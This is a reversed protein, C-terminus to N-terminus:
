KSSQLLSIILDLKQHISSVEESLSEVKQSLVDIKRNMSDLRLIEPSKRAKAPKPKESKQSDKKEENPLQQLSINEKTKETSNTQNIINQTKQNIEKLEEEIEVVEKEVTSIAEEEKEKGQNEEKNEDEEKEKGQNEEKNENEEKEKGQNEEKNIKEEKKVKYLNPVDKVMRKAKEQLEFARKENIEVGIGNYLLKAYEHYTTPDEISQLVEEFLKAAEKANKEQYIFDSLPSLIFGIFSKAYVNKMKASIQFHKMAENIDGNDSIINLGIQFHAQHSNYKNAAIDLFNIAKKRIEEKTDNHFIDYAALLAPFFGLNAAHLLYDIGGQIVLKENSGSNVKFISFASLPDIQNTEKHPAICIAPWSVDSDTFLALVFHNSFVKTAIKSIPQFLRGALLPPEGPISVLISEKDQSLTSEISNPDFNEPCSIGVNITKGKQMFDWMYMMQYKPDIM